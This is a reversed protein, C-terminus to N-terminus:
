MTKITEILDSIAKTYKEIMITSDKEFDKKSIEFYINADKIGDRVRRINNATEYHDHIPYQKRLKKIMQFTITLNKSQNEDLKNALWRKLAQLSGESPKHRKGCNCLHDDEPTLYVNFHDIISSLICVRYLFEANNKSPTNLDEVMQSGEALDELSKFFPTGYKLTFIEDLDMLKKNLDHGLSRLFLASSPNKTFPKSGVNAIKDVTGRVTDESNFSDFWFGEEPPQTATGIVNFIAEALEEAVAKDDNNGWITLATGTISLPVYFDNSPDPGIVHVIFDERDGKKPQRIADFTQKGAMPRKNVRM